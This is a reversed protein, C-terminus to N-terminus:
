VDGKKQMHSYMCSAKSISGNDVLQAIVHCEEKVEEKGRGEREGRREERGEVREEKDM